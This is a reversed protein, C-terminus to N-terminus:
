TLALSYEESALSISALAIQSTMRALQGPSSDNGSRAAWFDQINMNLCRGTDSDKVDLTQHPHREKLLALYDQLEYM